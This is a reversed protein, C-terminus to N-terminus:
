YYAADLLNTKGKGNLGCIGIVREAFDFHTLHYNKFQTLSIKSFFLMPQLIRLTNYAM